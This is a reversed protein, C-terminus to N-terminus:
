NINFELIVIIIIDQLHVSKCRIVKLPKEYFNKKARNLIKFKLKSKIRLNKINYKKKQLLLINQSKV